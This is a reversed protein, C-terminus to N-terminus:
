TVVRFLARSPWDASCALDISSKSFPSSETGSFMRVATRLLPPPWQFWVSYAVPKEELTLNSDSTTVCGARLLDPAAKGTGLLGAGVIRTNFLFKRRNM